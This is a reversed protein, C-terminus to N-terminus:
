PSFVRFQKVNVLDMTYYVLFSSPSCILTCNGTMLLWCNTMGAIYGFRGREPILCGDGFFDLDQSGVESIPGRKIVFSGLKLRFLIISVAKIRLVLAELRL